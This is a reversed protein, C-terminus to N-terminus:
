VEGCQLYHKMYTILADLSSALLTTSLGMLKTGYVRMSLTTLRYEASNLVFCIAMLRCNPIDDEELRRNGM